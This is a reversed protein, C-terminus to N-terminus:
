AMDREEEPVEIPSTCTDIDVQIGSMPVFANNFDQVYPRGQGDLPVSIGYERYLDDMYRMEVQIFCDMGMESPTIPFVAIVRFYRDMDPLFNEDFDCDTVEQQDFGIFVCPTDPDSWCPDDISCNAAVASPFLLFLLAFLAHITKM